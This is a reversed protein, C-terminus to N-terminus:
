PGRGGPPSEACLVGGMRPISRPSSGVWRASVRIRPGREGPASQPPGLRGLHPGEPAVHPQHEPQLDERVRRVRLAEGRHPDAPARHALLEQHLGQRVARVPLAERGHPHAPAQPPLREPRLGERVRRLHLHSIRWWRRAARSTSRASPAPTPSRATHLRQASIKSFAKGCRGCEFPM